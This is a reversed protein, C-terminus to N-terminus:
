ISKARNNWRDKENQSLSRWSSGADKFSIGANKVYLNYGSPGRRTTASNKSLIDRNPKEPKKTKSKPKNASILGSLFDDSKSKNASVFGSLFDTNKPPPKKDTKVPLGILMRAENIDFHFHRSLLELHAVTIPMISLIHLYVTYIYYFSPTFPSM